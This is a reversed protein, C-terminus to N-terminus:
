RAGEREFAMARLEDALVMGRERHASAILRHVRAEALVLPSPLPRSRGDRFPKRPPAPTPHARERAIEDLTARMAAIYEARTM